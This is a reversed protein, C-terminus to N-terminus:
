VDKKMKTFGGNSGGKIEGRRLLGYKLCFSEFLVRAQKEGM